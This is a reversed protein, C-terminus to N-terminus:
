CSPWSRRTCRRALARRPRREHAARLEAFALTDPARSRLLAVRRGSCGRRSSTARIAPACPSTCTGCCRPTRPTPRGAATAASCAVPPLVRLAAHRHAARPPDPRRRHDRELEEAVAAPVREPLMTTSTPVRRRLRARQRAAREAFDAFWVPAWHESLDDHVLRYVPGQALPKVAPERAPRGVLRQHRRPERAPVPVAGRAREAREVGPPADAAFWLGAERLSRRM